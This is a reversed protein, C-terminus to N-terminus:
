PHESPRCEKAKLWEAQGIVWLTSARALHGTKVTRPRAESRPQCLLFQSIWM